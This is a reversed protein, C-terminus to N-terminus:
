VRRTKGTARDVEVGGIAPLPDPDPDATPQVPPEEGLVLARAEPDAAALIAARDFERRGNARATAKAITADRRQDCKDLARQLRAASEFKNPTTM